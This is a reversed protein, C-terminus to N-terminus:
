GPKTSSSSAARTSASPKSSASSRGPPPSTRGRRSPPSSRKKKFSIKLAVLAGHLTGISVELGLATRLRELTLSPNAAVASRIAAEHRRHFPLKKMVQPRAAVEGTAEYRRIFRRVWEASVSYKRGLAAFSLGAQYDALVRTRLDLSLPV